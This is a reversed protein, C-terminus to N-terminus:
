SGLQRDFEQRPLRAAAKSPWSDLRGIRGQSGIRCASMSFRLNIEDANVQPDYNRTESPSGFGLLREYPRILGERYLFGPHRGRLHATPERAREARSLFEAINKDDLRAERDPVRGGTHEAHISPRVVAPSTNM